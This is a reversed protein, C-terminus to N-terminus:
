TKSGSAPPPTSSGQAPPTTTGGQTPPTTTGGQAPPETRRRVVPARAVTHLSVFKTEGGEHRLLWRGADAVETYVELLLVWVRATIDARRREEATGATGLEDIIRGALRAADTADTARYNKTDGSLAAAHDVYLRALRSLDSALDRYGTGSRIDDTEKQLPTGDFYYSVCKLMREKVATALDVLDVPLKAERASADATDQEVRAYWTARALAELDDVHRIDFESAPLSAFRARLEPQKVQRGISVAFIAAAAIDVRPLVVRDRPVALIRPMLRELDAKGLAPDIIDAPNPPTIAAEATSM